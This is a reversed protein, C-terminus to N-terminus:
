EHHRVTRINYMVGRLGGPERSLGIYCRDGNWSFEYSYNRTADFMAKGRAEALHRFSGLLARNEELYDYGTELWEVRELIETKLCM